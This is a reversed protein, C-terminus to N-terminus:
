PDIEHSGSSKVTDLKRGYIEDRKGMGAKTRKGRNLEEFCGTVSLRNPFVSGLFPQSNMRSKTILKGRRTWL